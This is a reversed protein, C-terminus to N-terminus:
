GNNLCATVRRRLASGALWALMFLTREVGASKACRWLLATRAPM